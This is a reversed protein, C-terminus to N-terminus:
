SKRTKSHPTYITFAPTDGENIQREVDLFPKRLVQPWDKYDEVTPVKPFFEKDDIIDIMYVLKETKDITAKIAIIVDYTTKGRLLSHEGCWPCYLTLAIPHTELSGTSMFSINMGPRSNEKKFIPKLNAAFIVTFDAQKRCHGCTGRVNFM